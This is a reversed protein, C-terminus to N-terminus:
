ELVSCTRDHAKGLELLRYEDPAAIGVPGSRLVTGM